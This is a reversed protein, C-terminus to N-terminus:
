QRVTARAVMRQARRQAFEKEYSTEPLLIPAENERADDFVVITPLRVPRADAFERRAASLSIVSVATVMAAFVAFAVARRAFQNKVIM